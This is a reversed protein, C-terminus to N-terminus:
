ALVALSFPLPCSHQPHWWHGGGDGGSAVEGCCCGNGAGVKTCAIKM